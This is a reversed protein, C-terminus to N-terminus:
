TKSPNISSEVFKTVSNWGESGGAVIWASIVVCLGDFLARHLGESQTGIFLTDDVFPSFANLCGLASLVGGMLVSIRLLTTRTEQKFDQLEARKALVQSDLSEIGRILTQYDANATVNPLQKALEEKETIKRDRKASLEEIHSILKQRLPKRLTSNYSELVREIVIIVFTIYIMNALIVNESIQYLNIKFISAGMLSAVGGFVFLALSIGWFNKMNM